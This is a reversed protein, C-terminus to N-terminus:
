LYRSSLVKFEPQTVYSCYHVKENFDMVKQFRLRPAPATIYDLVKEKSVWIVDSTEDSPTLNGGEYDCIFDFIM